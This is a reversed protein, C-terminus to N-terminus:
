FRNSNIDTWNDFLNAVEYDIIMPNNAILGQEEDLYLTYTYENDYPIFSKLTNIYNNANLENSNYYFTIGNVEIMDGSTNM